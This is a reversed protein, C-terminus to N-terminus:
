TVGFTTLYTRAWQGGNYNRMLEERDIAYPNEARPDAVDVFFQGDPQDWSYGHLVIFHGGQGGYDIQCCLPRGADIEQIITDAEVPSEIVKQLLGLDTLVAILDYPQDCIAPTPTIKCIPLDLTTAVIDGQTLESTPDYFSKLSVAVAAWCWNEMKQPQMNFILVKEISKRKAM